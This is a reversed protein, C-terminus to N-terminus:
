LRCIPWYRPLVTCQWLVPYPCLYIFKMELSITTYFVVYTM